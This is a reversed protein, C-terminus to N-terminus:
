LLSNTYEIYYKVKEEEARSEAEHLMSGRNLEIVGLIASEM